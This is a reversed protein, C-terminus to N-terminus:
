EPLLQELTDLWESFHPCKSRIKQITIHEYILNAPAFGKQYPLVKLIRKSPATEPGNNIDEPAMGQTEEELRDISHQEEPLLYDRKLVSIDTFLLTEFEHLQIYPVFQIRRNLLSPENLIDDRMAQELFHVSELHSPLRMAQEYGPFNDPIRFFDIMTSVCATTDSKLWNVIDNRVQVYTNCGGRKERNLSRDKSTMICRSDFSLRGMYYNNLCLKVFQLESYGESVVNIRIM